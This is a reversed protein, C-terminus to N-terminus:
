QQAEGQTVIVAPHATDLVDGWNTRGRMEAEIDPGLIPGEARTEWGGGLAKYTTILSLAVDGRTITYRDQQQVLFRQTDLVRQYNISGQRYQVLSLEVSRQASAVSDNLLAARSQDLGDKQSDPLQRWTTSRKNLVKEWGLQDCWRNLIEASLTGGRLDRFEYECGRQELWNRAKKVTDCNKIGYLQPMASM